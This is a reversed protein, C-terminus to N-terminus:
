RTHVGDLAGSHLAADFRIYTPPVADTLWVSNASCFFAYGDAHMAEARIPLVVTSSRCRCQSARNRRREITTEFVLRMTSTLMARNAREAPFSLIPPRM